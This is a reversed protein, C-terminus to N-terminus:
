PPRIKPFSRYNTTCTATYGALLVPIAKIYGVNSKERFVLLRNTAHGLEEFYVFDISTPKLVSTIARWLSDRWHSWLTQPKLIGKSFLTSRQFIKITSRQFLTSRKCRQVEVSIKDWQSNSCNWHVVVQWLVVEINKDCIMTFGM